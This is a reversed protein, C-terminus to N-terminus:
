FNFRAFALSSKTRRARSAARRPARCFAGFREDGHAAYTQERPSDGREGVGTKRAENDIDRRDAASPLDLRSDRAPPAAERASEFDAKRAFFRREFGRASDAESQAAAREIGIRREDGDVGINQAIEIARTQAIKAGRRIRNESTENEDVVRRMTRRAIKDQAGVAANRREFRRRRRRRRFARARQSKGSDANIARTKKRVDGVPLCDSEGGNQLLRDRAARDRAFIM